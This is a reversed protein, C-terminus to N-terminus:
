ERPTSPYGHTAEPKETDSPVVTQATKLEKELIRVKEELEAVREKLIHNEEIASARMRYEPADSTLVGVIYLGLLLIVCIIIGGKVMRKRQRNKDAQAIGYRYNEM